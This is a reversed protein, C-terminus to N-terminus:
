GVSTGQLRLVLLPLILWRLLFVEAIFLICRRLARQGRATWRLHEAQSSSTDRVDFEVGLRLVVQV